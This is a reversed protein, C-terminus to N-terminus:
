SKVDSYVAANRKVSWATNSYYAAFDAPVSCDDMGTPSKIHPSSVINCALCAIHLQCCCAHHSPAIPGTMRTVGTLSPECLIGLYGLLWM